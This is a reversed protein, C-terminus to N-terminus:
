KKGELLAAAHKRAAAGGGLMRELENLRGKQDLECIRSRTETGDTSKEVLFHREALRVVQPLHSICIVQKQKGLAAIEGGVRMATEGGINADIEDFVLVPIEDAEALVTKAALMVRAIEGSSAVDKLPKLPVGPNASFMIQLRDAGNSGPEPAPSLVLEFRAQAFGLKETEATLLEALKGTAEKRAATLETCIKRFTNEAETIRKEWELRFHEANDFADLQKKLFEQQNIVDYLTPGFKRKLMQLTRMREEMALFESEDLEVSSAHDMMDASLESVMESINEMRNLFDEAKDPDYKELDSLTRRLDAIRDFLSEEGDTLGNCVGSEIEIISRANAAIAHRASLAEDEGPEPNARTILRIDKRMEEAEDASPMSLLFEAQGNRYDELNKWAEETKKLLGSLSAFRDLARLQEANQLLSQNENAAHIDILQEGLKKLTPLAVPSGNIYNRTSNQTIVRRILVSDGDGDTEVDADRLIINIKERIQDPLRFEASIECRDAGTRIASKDARTGLLLSVGGMIVSKGAGTEGSIVNFGPAFEIEAEEVLALNKLKMWLLM